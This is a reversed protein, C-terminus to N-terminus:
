ASTNTRPLPYMSVICEDIKMAQRRHRVLPIAAWAAANFFDSRRCTALAYGNRATHDVIREYMPDARCNAKFHQAAAREDDAHPWGVTVVSTQGDIPKGDGAPSTLNLGVHANLLKCLGEILHRRRRHPATPMSHLENALRLAGRIDTSTLLQLSSGM